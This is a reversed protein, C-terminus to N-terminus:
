PTAASIEELVVKEDTTKLDTFGAARMGAYLFARTIAAQSLNNEGAAKDIIARADKSILLVTQETYKANPLRRARKAKETKAM